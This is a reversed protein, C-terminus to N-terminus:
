RKRSPARSTGGTTLGKKSRIGKMGAPSPSKTTPKKKKKEMNPVRVNFSPFIKTPEDLLPVYACQPHEDVFVMQKEMLVYTGETGLHKYAYDYKHADLEKVLGTEDAVDITLDAHGSRRKISNLLNVVACTPNCLLTENAGYKILIFM